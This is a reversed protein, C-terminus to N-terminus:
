AIKPGYASAASEPPLAGGGDGHGPESRQRLGADLSIDAFRQGLAAIQRRGLETIGGDYQGHMRRYLNGEAEGHRILYLETMPNGSRLTGTLSRMERIGRSECFEKLEELIRLPAAPDSITATGVGVAAAGAMMLEAADLGASVGGMGLIPIKVAQYVQHVCRVAVPLVAPGSLGGTNNRLIPRRTNLDIRMGLLTNILSVADAGAAEVARAIEAIDTVNPSLKVMVPLSTHEKVAKTAAAASEPQTGFALGGCKVNPCSINVELMDVGPVTLKEALAAYEELTNGSLNAIVRTSQTRLWPLEREVFADVGPNQLGVSNLM